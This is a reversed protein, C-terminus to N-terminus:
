YEFATLSISKTALTVFTGVKLPIGTAIFPIIYDGIRLVVYGDEDISDILGSIFIISNKEIISYKRGDAEVIDVGWELTQLIDVEVDYVHNKKPTDGNWGTWLARASGFDTSFCIITDPNSCFIKKVRIRM